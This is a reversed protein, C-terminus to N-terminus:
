NPSITEAERASYAMMGNRM